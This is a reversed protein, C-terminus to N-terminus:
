AQPHLLFMNRICMVPDKLFKWDGRAETLACRLRGHAGAPALPATTLDPFSGAVLVEGSSDLIPVPHFGHFMANLSAVIEASLNLLCLLYKMDDQSCTYVYAYMCIYYMYMCLCICKYAHM